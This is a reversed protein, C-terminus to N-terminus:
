KQSKRERSSVAKGQFLRQQAGAHDTKRRVPNLKNLCRKIIGNYCVQKFM